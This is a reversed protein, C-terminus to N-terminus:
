NESLFQHPSRGHTGHTLLVGPTVRYTNQQVKTRRCSRLSDSCGHHSKTRSFIPHVQRPSHIWVLFCQKPIIYIYLIYLIYTYNIYIFKLFMISCTARTRGVSKDNRPDSSYRQLNWKPIKEPILVEDLKSPLWHGWLRLPDPLTSTPIDYSDYPLICKIKAATANSRHKTINHEWEEPM